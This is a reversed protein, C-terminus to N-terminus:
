WQNLFLELYGPLDESILLGMWFVMEIGPVKVVTVEEEELEV